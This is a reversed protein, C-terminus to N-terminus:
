YRIGAKRYVFGLLWVPGILLFQIDKFFSPKKGEIRHGIFQGIWAVVFIALAIRWLPTELQALEFNGWLVLASVLLMGLALQWSLLLYYVMAAAVFLSGWNLWPSIEAFMEPRPLSWLLGVLSFVIAPVCLWHIIKNTRNRHSEGYENFWQDASRMRHGPM